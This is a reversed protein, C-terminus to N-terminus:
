SASIFRRQNARGKTEPPADHIALDDTCSFCSVVGPGLGSVEVEPSGDRLELAHAQLFRLGPEIGVTVGLYPLQEPEQGLLIIKM